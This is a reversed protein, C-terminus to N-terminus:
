DELYWLGEKIIKKLENESYYPLIEKFIENLKFYRKSSNLLEHEVRCRKDSNLIDIFNVSKEVKVFLQKDNIGGHHIGDGDNFKISGGEKSITTVVWVKETCVYTDGDQINAIVEKFSYEKM